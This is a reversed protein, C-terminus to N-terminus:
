DKLNPLCLTEERLQNMLIEVTEEEIGKENMRYIFSSWNEECFDIMGYVIDQPTEM